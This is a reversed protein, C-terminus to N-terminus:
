AVRAVTAVETITIGGRNARVAHGHCAIRIAGLRYTVAIGVFLATVSRESSARAAGCVRCASDWRLAHREAHPTGVFRNLANLCRPSDAYFGLEDSYRTPFTSTPPPFAVHILM